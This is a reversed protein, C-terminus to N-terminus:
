HIDSFGLLLVLIKLRLISLLLIGNVAHNMSSLVPQLSNRRFLTLKSVNASYCIIQWYYLFPCLCVAIRTHMNLYYSGILSINCLTRLMHAVWDDFPAEVCVGRLYRSICTCVICVVIYHLSWECGDLFM